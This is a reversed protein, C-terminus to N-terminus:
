SILLEKEDDGFSGNQAGKAWKVVLALTVHLPSDCASAKLQGM